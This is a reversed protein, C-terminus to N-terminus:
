TERNKKATKEKTLSPEAAKRNDSEDMALVPLMVGASKGGPGIQKEMCACFSCQAPMVDARGGAPRMAPKWIAASSPNETGAHPQAQDSCAQPAAACSVGSLLEMFNM